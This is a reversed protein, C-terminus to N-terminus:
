RAKAAFPPTDQSVLLDYIAKPESCGLRGAAWEVASQWGHAHGNRGDNPDWGFGNQDQVQHMVEHWLDSRWPDWFHKGKITREEWAPPGGEPTVTANFVVSLDLDSSTIAIRRPTGGYMPFGSEAMHTFELPVPVLGLQKCLWVYEHRVLREYDAVSVM